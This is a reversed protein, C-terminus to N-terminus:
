SLRKLAGPSFLATVGASLLFSGASLRGSVALAIFPFVVFVTLAAGRRVRPGAKRANLLWLGRGLIEGAAFWALVAVPIMESVGAGLLYAIYGALVILGLLTAEVENRREGPAM